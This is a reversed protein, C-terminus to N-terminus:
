EIKAAYSDDVTFVIKNKENLICAAMKNIITQQRGKPNASPPDFLHLFSNFSNDNISLHQHLGPHSLLTLVQAQPQEFAHAQTNAM